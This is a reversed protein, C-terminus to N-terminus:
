PKVPTAIFARSQGQYFGQGVIVGRDNLGRAELESWGEGSADLLRDLRYCRGKTVLMSWPGHNTFFLGIIDDHINIALPVGIGDGCSPLAQMQAGDHLFGIETDTWDPAAVGVVHGADNIAFGESSKGGLTGLDQLVGGDRRYARAYVKGEGDPPLYATGVAQGTNNVGRVLNGPSGLTGLDIAAGEHVLVSSFRYPNDATCEYSFVVDGADNVGAAKSKKGAENDCTVLASLDQGVGLADWMWADDDIGGAVVGALNIDAGFAQATGRGDLPSPKGRKARFAAREGSGPFYGAGAVVSKENIANGVFARFGGRDEIPAISYVPKAALAAATAAALACFLTASRLM